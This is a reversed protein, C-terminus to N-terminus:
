GAFYCKAWGFVLGVAIVQLAISNSQHGKSYFIAAAIGIPVQSWPFTAVIQAIATAIIFACVSQLIKCIESGSM